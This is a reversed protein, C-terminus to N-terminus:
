TNAAGISSIVKNAYIIKGNSLTVGICVDHADLLVTQVPCKLFVKKKKFM